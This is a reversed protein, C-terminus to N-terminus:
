LLPVEADKGGPQKFRLVDGGSKKEIRWSQALHRTEKATVEVFFIALRHAVEEGARFRRPRESYSGYLIDSRVSIGRSYDSAQAYAMGAGAVMVVGMRGDVNAWTGPLASVQQPKQSDFEIQGDQHSVTRAGGTIEDNEIGVPVGRESRVTM